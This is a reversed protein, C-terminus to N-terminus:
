GGASLIADTAREKRRRRFPSKKETFRVIVAKLTIGGERKQSASL